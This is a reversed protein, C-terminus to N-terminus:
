EHRKDKLIDWHSIHIRTFCQITVYGTKDKIKWAELPKIRKVNNHIDKQTLEVENNKPYALVDRFVKIRTNKVKIRNRLTHLRAESIILWVILIGIILLEYNM